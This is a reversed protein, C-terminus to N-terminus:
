ILFHKWEPQGMELHISAERASHHVSGINEQKLGIHVSELCLPAPNKLDGFANINMEFFISGVKLNKNKTIM